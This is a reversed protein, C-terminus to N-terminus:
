AFLNIFAQFGIRDIPVWVPQVFFIGDRSRRIAVIKRSITGTVDFLFGSLEAFQYSSFFYQILNSSPVRKMPEIYVMNKIVARSNNAKTRPM